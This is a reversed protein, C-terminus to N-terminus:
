KFVLAPLWTPLFLLSRTTVWVQMQLPPLLSQLLGLSRDVVICLDFNLLSRVLNLSGFLANSTLSGQAADLGALGNLSVSSPSDAPAPGRLNVLGPQLHLSGGSRPMQGAM